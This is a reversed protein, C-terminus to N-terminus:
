DCIINYIKDAIVLVFTMHWGTQLVRITFGRFVTSIGENKIKNKLIRMVTDNSNRTQQIIPILRDIPMSVAVSLIASIYSSLLTDLTTPKRDNNVIYQQTKDMFYFRTSWDIARKLMMAYMGTTLVCIGEYKVANYLIYTSYKTEQYWNLKVEPNLLTRQIIYQNIRIRALNSPSMFIGQCLGSGCGALLNATEKDINYKNCQKIIASYSGGLVFGKGFGTILGWPYLGAHYGKLGHKLINSTITRYSLSTRQKEMKVNEMFIGAMVIEAISCGGVIVAKTFHKTENTNTMDVYIYVFM